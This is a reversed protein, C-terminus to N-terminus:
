IVRKMPKKKVAILGMAQKKEHIGEFGAEKLRKKVGKSIDIGRGSFPKGLYHFLKGEDKLVRYLEKYFNASYLEGAIRISPPDHLISDFYNDEIKKIEESIDGKKVKIKPNEFAERSEENKKAIELVANDNEFSFVEEVYDSKGIEITAYGLGFCCDLVKGKLPKLSSVMEKITGKIGEKVCHMRIGAIELCPLDGPIELLRYYKNTKESFLYDLVRPKKKGM